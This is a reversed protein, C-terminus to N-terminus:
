QISRLFPQPGGKVYGSKSYLRADGDVIIITPYGRVEYKNALAKNHKRVSDSLVTKRPFDIKLLIYENKAYRIFSAQSFVEAELRKCWGCWDSGTFNILVKKGTRKAADVATDFDTLWAASSGIASNAAISERGQTREIAATKTIQHYQHKTIWNGRYNILGQDRKSELKAKAQARENLLQKLEPSSSTVKGDKLKVKAKGYTLIMQSGAALKGDPEGFANIVGAYSTGKTLEGGLLASISFMLLVTFLTLRKRTSYSHSPSM